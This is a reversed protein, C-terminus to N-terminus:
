RFRTAIERTLMRFCVFIVLLTLGVTVATWFVMAAEFRHQLFSPPVVRTV